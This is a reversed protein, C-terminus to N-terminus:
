IPRCKDSIYISTDNATLSVVLPQIVPEIVEFTKTESIILSESRITANITYNGLDSTYLFRYTSPYTKNISPTFTSSGWSIVISVTANQDANVTYYVPENREYRVKNTTIDSIGSAVAFM